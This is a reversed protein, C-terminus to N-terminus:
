PNKYFFVKFKYTKELLKFNKLTKKTDLGNVKTKYNNAQHRDM